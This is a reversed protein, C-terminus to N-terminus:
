PVRRIYTCAALLQKPNLLVTKLGVSQTSQNLGRESINHVFLYIYIQLKEVHTKM